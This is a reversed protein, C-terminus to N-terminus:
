HQRPGRLKMSSTQSSSSLSSTLTASQSADYPFSKSLSSAVRTLRTLSTEIRAWATKPRSTSRCSSGVCVKWTPRPLLSNLSFTAVSSIFTRLRATTKGNEQVCDQELISLCCRKYENTNLKVYRRHGTERQNDLKRAEPLWVAVTDGVQINDPNIHRDHEERRVGLALESARLCVCM